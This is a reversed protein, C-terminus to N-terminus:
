IIKKKFFYSRVKYGLSARIEHDEQRLRELTLSRQGRGPKGGREKSSGHGELILVWWSSFRQSWELELPFGVRAPAGM